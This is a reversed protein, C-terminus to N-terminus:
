IINNRQLTDKLTDNEAKLEQIAKVLYPVIYDSKLTLQDNTKSITDVAEPIVEQVDQAIWGINNKIGDIYDFRVPNLKLITDLGSGELNIINEKIRRDSGYSWAAANLYGANAENVYFMAVDSSNRIWIPSYAGADLKIVLGERASGALISLVSNAGIVASTNLLINGASTIRMRETASTALLMYDGNHQYQIYGRYTDSGVSGDGFLVSSYGTTTATFQIDSFSNSYNGIQITGDSKIRMREVPTGVAATYFRLEINDGSAPTNRYAAIEATPTSNGSYWTISGMNHAVYIDGGTGTNNINIIRNTTTGWTTQKSFHLMSSPSTENIGVNGGSTIRMRETLANGISGTAKNAFIINAGYNSDTAYISAQAPNAAVETDTM